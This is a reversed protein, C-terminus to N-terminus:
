HPSLAYKNEPAHVAAELGLAAQSPTRKMAPATPQEASSELIGRSTGPTEGASKGRTDTPVELVVPASGAAEGAHKEPIDTPIEVVTPASKAAEGAHKELTDAPVEVVQHTNEPAEEANGSDNATVEREGRADRSDGGITGPNSGPPDKGPAASMGSSEPTGDVTIGPTETTEM